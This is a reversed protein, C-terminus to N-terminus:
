KNLINKAQNLQIIQKNKVAIIFADPFNERLKKLNAGAEDYSPLIGVAYKYWDGSIFEEPDPYESFITDDLSFQKRSSFLQIKYYCEPTSKVADTQIIGSSEKLTQTDFNSSNEINKKYERFARFVASALYDQGAESILYKEEDPHSIFGAELLVSPMSTRWLVLFPAQRVGRDVRRAKERLENQILGAIDMSQNLHTQQMLSFIIYSETSNPDFGEYKTSYDEELFIVANEAKAVELNKENKDEGMVYTEAGFVYKRPNSNAHISIFLDAKNKNAIDAREYLPIFIDKDRTYIVKVDSYNSEIYNGLKLAIGLTIDKEKTRSGLAGPDYGGHGADIVITTVKGPIIPDGDAYINIPSIIFGSVLILIYPTIRKFQQCTRSNLSGM